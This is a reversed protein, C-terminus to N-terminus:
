VRPLVIGSQHQYKGHKDAYSRDCTESARLFILQAIGENGYVRAPLPTTNSIEITIHGEWEPELPTIGIVIGVRAYTSKGICIVLISRPIKFWEVSRGLIFSNPPILCEDGQREVFCDTDFHKPDVVTNNVNTFIRYEDALRCDYGYSTLGFSIQGSRCLGYDIFPDIMGARALVRIEHDSLVM